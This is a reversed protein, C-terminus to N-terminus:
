FLQSWRWCVRRSIKSGTQLAQYESIESLRPIKPMLNRQNNITSGKVKKEDWFIGVVYKKAQRPTQISKSLIMRSIYIKMIKIYNKLRVIILSQDSSGSSCQVLFYFKSFCFITWTFHVLFFNFHLWYWHNTKNTWLTFETCSAQALHKATWMDFYLIKCFVHFFLVYFM